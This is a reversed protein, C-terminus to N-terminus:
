IFTTFAAECHIPTARALMELGLRGSPCDAHRLVHFNALSIANLLARVEGFVLAADGCAAPPGAVHGSSSLSVTDQSRMTGSSAMARHSTRGRTSPHEAAPSSIAQAYDVIANGQNAKRKNNTQKSVCGKHAHGDEVAAQRFAVVDIAQEQQEALM